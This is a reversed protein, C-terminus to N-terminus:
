LKAKVQETIDSTEDAYLIAGSSADFIFTYGNEKAVEDIAQSVQDLIPQLLEQEKAVMKQQMEQEFAMIEQQKKQLDALVQEKEAPALQGAQEKQVAEQEKTQYDTLMQQGKKQLISGYSELNSRMQQVQPLEALIAASNVYGYKQAHVATVTLMMGIALVSLKIVKKM